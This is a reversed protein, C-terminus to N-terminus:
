SAEPGEGIAMCVEFLVSLVGFTMRWFCEISWMYWMEAFFVQEVEGRPIWVYGELSEQM